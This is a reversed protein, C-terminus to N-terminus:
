GPIMSTRMVAQAGYLVADERGRLFTLIAEHILSLPTSERMVFERFTLAGDGIM